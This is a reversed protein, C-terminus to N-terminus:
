KRNQAYAVLADKVGWRFAVVIAIGWGLPMLFAYLIGTDILMTDLAILIVVLFLFGRVLPVIFNAGEVKMETITNQIYRMFFDVSVIGLVLILVGLIVRPLYAAIMILFDTIMPLQLINLAAIIFILYGFLKILGTIIGAATTNTAKIPGGIASSEIRENVGTAVLLKHGTNAIFDVVILGVILVVLAAVILPIYALILTIFDAVVEINLYDIIIAAFVIYVFWRIVGDFFAVTTMGAKNIIDGLSTKDILNDLGIKDLIKSGIKGLSRGAIWGVILLVIVAVVIPIAAIMQDVALMLSDMVTM